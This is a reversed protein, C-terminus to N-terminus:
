YEKLKKTLYKQEKKLQQVAYKIILKVIIPYNCFVLKHNFNDEIKIPKRIDDPSLTGTTKGSPRQTKSEGKDEDMEEDILKLNRQLKTQHKLNHILVDQLIIKENLNAM